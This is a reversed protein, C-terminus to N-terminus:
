IKGLPEAIDVVLQAGEPTKPLYTIPPGECQRPAESGDRRRWRVPEDGILHDAVGKVKPAILAARPTVQLADDSIILRASVGSGPNDSKIEVLLRHSM